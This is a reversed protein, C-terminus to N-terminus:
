FRENSKSRKRFDLHKSWDFPTYSSFKLTNEITKEVYDMYKRDDKRKENSGLRSLPSLLFLEKMLNPNGNTYNRALSLFIFDDRSHDGTLSIGSLLAKAKTNTRKMVDIIECVSLNYFNYNKQSNLDKYKEIQKKISSKEQTWKKYLSNIEIQKDLFKNSIPFFRGDGVNGTLAIYRNEKYIEIGESAKILNNPIDGTAFIHLGQRSQSIEIYTGKFDAIINKAMETLKGHNISHDLDVCFIHDNDLVFGLNKNQNEIEEFSIWKEKDNWGTSRNDILSFPIKATKGNLTEIRYGIFRKLKKMEDPLYKYRNEM